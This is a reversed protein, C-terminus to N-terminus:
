TSNSPLPSQHKNSSNNHSNHSSSPLLHLNVRHQPPPPQLRNPSLLPPLQLLLVCGPQTRIRTRWLPLPLPLRPVRLPRTTHKLVLAKHSAMVLDVVGPTVMRPLPKAHDENATPVPKVVLIAARNVPLVRATRRVQHLAVTAVVPLRAHRRVPRSPDSMHQRHGMLLLRAQAQAQEPRQRLPTLRPHLLPALLM